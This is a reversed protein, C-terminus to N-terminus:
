ELPVTAEIRTGHSRRSTIKLKGNLVRLRERMTIFGLGPATKDSGADFGRGFDSVVLKVVKASRKLLVDVSSAGSHKVANDISDQAVRFICLRTNNPLESQPGEDRYNIALGHRSAIERCLSSLASSLGFYDLKSPHLEYSIRHIESSLERTKEQLGRVREGLGDARGTIKQALMELEISILAVRQNINDHLERSIREREDEQAAILRGSVLSQSDDSQKRKNLDVMARSPGTM